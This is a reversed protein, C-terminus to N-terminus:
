YFDKWITGDYGEHKNTTTNFRIMGAVGTPRQGTTGIPPLFADTGDIYVYGSTGGSNDLGGSLHLNSGITGNTSTTPQIYIDSGAPATSPLGGWGLYYHLIPSNASGVVMENAATTSSAEAEYGFLITDTVDTSSVAGAYAGLAMSRTISNVTNFAKYGNAVVYDGAGVSAAEAGYVTLYNGNWNYAAVLGQIVCALHDYTYGAFYGSILNGGNNIIGYGANTGLFVNQYGYQSQGGAGSGLYVEDSVSIIQEGANKGAIVCGVIQPDNNNGAINIGILVSGDIYAAGNNAIGSGILFGDFAVSGIGNLNSTGIVFLNSATIMNNVLTDGIAYVGYTGSSNQGINSGIGLCNQESTLGAWINSGSGYNYSGDTLHQLINAGSGYNNSATTIDPMILYGTGFNLVSTAANTMVNPGIATTTNIITALSLNSTGIVTSNVAGAVVSAAADYGIAIVSTADTASKLANTAITVTYIGNTLSKGADVGYGTNWHGSMNLPRNAYEFTSGTTPHVLAGSVILPSSATGEGSITTGNVYIKQKSVRLPM